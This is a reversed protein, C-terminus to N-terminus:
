RLEVAVTVGLPGDEAYRKWVDLHVVQSDDKYVVGKLADGVARTLKDADPKTSPFAPASPKLGKAGFHGKPRPLYFDLRLGIPGAYPAALGYARRAADAVLRRWEMLDPKKEHVIATGGNPLPLARMSGQTVPKGVASFRFEVYSV